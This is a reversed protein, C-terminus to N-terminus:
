NKHLTYTKWYALVWFKLIKINYHVTLTNRDYSQITSETFLISGLHYDILHSTGFSTVLPESFHHQWGLSLCQVDQSLASQTDPVLRPETYVADHPVLM